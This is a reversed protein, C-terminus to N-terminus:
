SAASEKETGKPQMISHKSPNNIFEVMDMVLKNDNFMNSVDKVRESMTGEQAFLLRYANRLAHITARDFGRRKLGVLNLGVLNAHESSVLGYPIVDRDVASMGGIMAHHGIRVFQLCAALGGITVFDEIEVHGALTANNAMIVNNGIICDHAIHVGVMLLCNNGISTRMGGGETGPNITVHERIINESGIELTAPEGNYKQDQTEYGIAAFSYIVTKSGITTRGDIVVHPKLEVEDGLEVYPGVISYPGIKVNKGIKADPHVIATPHIDDQGWVSKVITKLNNTM